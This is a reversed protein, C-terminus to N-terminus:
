CRGDLLRLRMEGYKVKLKFKIVSLRIYNEFNWFIFKYLYFGCIKIM